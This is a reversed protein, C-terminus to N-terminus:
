MTPRGTNTIPRGQIPASTAVTRSDYFLSILDHICHDVGTRSRRPAGDGAPHLWAQRVLQQGSHQFHQRNPDRQEFQVGVPEPETVAVLDEGPHQREVSHWRIPLQDTLNEVPRLVVGDDLEEVEHADTAFWLAVEGRLPSLCGVPDQVDIGIREQPDTADTMDQDQGFPRLFLQFGPM